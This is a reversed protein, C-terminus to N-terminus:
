AFQPMQYRNCYFKKIKELAKKRTYDVQRESMSLEEAIVKLSIQNNGNLGFFLKIITKEQQNLHKLSKNIDQKKSEEILRHEPSSEDNVDALNSFSFGKSNNIGEYDNSEHSEYIYEKMAKKLNKIQKTKIKMEELIETLTPARNLSQELEKRKHNIKKILSRKNSPIRITGNNDELYRLISQRIWWVAYSIFKYGTEVNFRSIAEILGINGESILDNLAAQHHKQYQLAVSIVFKLNAKILKEISKQDGSQGRILLKREEEVNLISIKGVEKLYYNLIPNKSNRAIMM